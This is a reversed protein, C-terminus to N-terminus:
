LVMELEKGGYDDMDTAGLHDHILENLLNVANNYQDETNVLEDLRIDGQFAEPLFVGGAQIGNDHIQDGVLPPGELVSPVDAVILQGDPGPVRNFGLRTFTTGLDVVIVRKDPWYPEKTSSLSNSTTSDVECVSSSTSPIAPVLFIGDGAAQNIPAQM